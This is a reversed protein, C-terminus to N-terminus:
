KLNNLLNASYVRQSVHWDHKTCLYVFTLAGRAGVASGTVVVDVVEETIAWDSVGPLGAFTCM